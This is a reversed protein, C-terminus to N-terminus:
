VNHESHGAIFEDTGIRCSGFTVEPASPLRAAVEDADSQTAHFSTINADPDPRVSWGMRRDPNIPDLTTMLKRLPRLWPLAAFYGTGFANGPSSDLARSVIGIVEGEMNFVPGGSMGSPWNAEVEVVPSPNARDRGHPHAAIIRAFAGHMGESLFRHLDHNSVPDASLEPFGVAYVWDGVNPRWHTLRIPLTAVFETPPPHIRLLAADEAPLTKMEGRMDAIPDDKEQVASAVHLVLPFERMSLGHPRGLIIGQGLLVRAYPGEGEVQHERDVLRGARASPVDRRMIDIVHDATLLTGWLDAHFATGAGEVDKIGELFVPVVAKRLGFPDDISHLEHPAAPNQARTFIGPGADSLIPIIIETMILFQANLPLCDLRRMAFVFTYPGHWRRLRKARQLRLLLAADVEVLAAAQM